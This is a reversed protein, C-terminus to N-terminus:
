RELASRAAAGAISVALKKKAGRFSRPSGWMESPATKAAPIEDIPGGLRSGSLRLRRNAHIQMAPNRDAQNM